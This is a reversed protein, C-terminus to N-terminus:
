ILFLICEDVEAIQLREDFFILKPDILGNLIEEYDKYIGSQEMILRSWMLPKNRATDAFAMNRKLHYKLDQKESEM